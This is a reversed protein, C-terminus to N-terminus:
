YNSPLHIPSYQYIFVIISIRFVFCQSEVIPAAHHDFPVCLQAALLFKKGVEEEAGESLLLSSRGRLFGLFM